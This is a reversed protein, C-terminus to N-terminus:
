YPWALGADAGHDAMSLAARGRAGNRLPHDLVHVGYMQDLWQERDLPRRHKFIRMPDIKRRPQDTNFDDIAALQGAWRNRFLSGIRGAGGLTDDFYACVVPLYLDPPGTLAQLSDRTSSYVDVDNSFFGLPRDPLLRTQLEAATDSLDGWIMEVGPPLSAEFGQRDPNAFDGETWIEPHDRYDRPAPLGAGRDMGIVHFRVGTEAAVEAALAALTLLGGGEAVGFEVAVLESLGCFSAMDAAALLGAAYPPRPVLDYRARERFGAGGAGDRAALLAPSYREELAPPASM